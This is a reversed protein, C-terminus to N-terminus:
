KRLSKHANSGPVLATALTGLGFGLVYGWFPHAKWMLSGTVGAMTAGVNCLARARDDGQGRYLRFANGGVTEGLVFGLFRHKPWAAVGVLGLAAAPAVMAVLTPDSPAPHAVAASSPSVIGLFDISNFKKYAM